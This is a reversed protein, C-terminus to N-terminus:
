HQWLGGPENSCALNVVNGMPSYPFGADRLQADWPCDHVRLESGVCLPVTWSPSSSAPYFLMGVTLVGRSYGLQRCAVQALASQNFSGGLVAGWIGDRFAELRGQTPSPGGSLRLPMSIM